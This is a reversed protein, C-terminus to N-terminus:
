PTKKVTFIPFLADALDAALRALSAMTTIIMMPMITAMDSMHM